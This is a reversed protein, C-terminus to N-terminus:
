ESHVGCLCVAIFYSYLTRLTVAVQEAAHPDSTRCSDPKNWISLGKHVALM